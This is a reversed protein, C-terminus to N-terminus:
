KYNHEIGTTTIHGHHQYPRPQYFNKGSNLSNPHDSPIAWGPTTPYLGLVPTQNISNKNVTLHPHHTDLIVPNLVRLNSVIFEQYLTYIVLWSYIGEMAVFVLAIPLLNRVDNANNENLINEDILEDIDPESKVCIYLLFCITGIITM